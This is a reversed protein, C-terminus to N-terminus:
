PASRRESVVSVLPLGLDRVRCLVGHLGAQDVDCVLSTTGDGNRAISLGDFWDNWTDDLHGVVRIRYETTAPPRTM